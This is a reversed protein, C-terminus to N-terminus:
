GQEDHIRARLQEAIDYPTGLRRAAGSVDLFAEDLSVVEVVPTVQRFSEMVAGSVQTFTDFDPPLVVAAPCLRRARTMPMASRVGHARAEYSASLVVGRHGGGVIVPLGQLDPRDRVAVSAYFADMDVHLVPCSRSAQALDARM